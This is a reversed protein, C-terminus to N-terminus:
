YKAVVPYPAWTDFNYSFGAQVQNETLRRTTTLAAGGLLAGAVPSDM